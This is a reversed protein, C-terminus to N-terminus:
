RHRYKDSTKIIRVNNSKRIHSMNYGNQLLFWKLDNDKEDLDAAPGIVIEKILSKKIESFDLDIFSRISNNSKCYDIPKRNFGCNFNNPGNIENLFSQLQNDDLRIIPGYPNYILRWEEEDSFFSSKFLPACSNFLSIIKFILNEFEIPNIASTKEFYDDVIEFMRKKFKETGYEIKDFRYRQKDNQLGYLLKANFGIAIGRGDDSYRTWQSLKNSAESFCFTYFMKSEMDYRNNIEEIVDPISKKDEDNVEQNYKNIVKDIITEVCPKLYKIEQPDNTKRINFLRMTSNSIIKIFSDVTCYHYVIDPGNYYNENDPEFFTQLNKWDLNNTINM